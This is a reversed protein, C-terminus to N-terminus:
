VAVLSICSGVEVKTPSVEFTRGDCPGNGSGSTRGDCPGNGSGSTRGDCPGNGSGSAPTPPARAHVTVNTKLLVCGTDANVNFDSAM